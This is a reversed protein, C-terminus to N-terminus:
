IPQTASGTPAGSKTYKSNVGDRRRLLLAALPIIRGAAQPPENLLATAPPLALKSIPLLVWIKARPGRPRGRPRERRRDRGVSAKEPENASRARAPPDAM